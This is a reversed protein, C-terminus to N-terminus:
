RLEEQGRVRYGVPFLSWGWRDSVFGWLGRPVMLTALVAIGGVLVLYWAGEQSLTQQLAFLILAGIVPGEITGMGGILVMFLMEVSYQVSFVSTPEIFLTQLAILAGV